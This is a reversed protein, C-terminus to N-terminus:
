AAKRVRREYRGGFAKRRLRPVRRELDREVALMPEGWARARGAVAAAERCADLAAAIDRLRHERYRALYLWAAAAGPGGRAAIGTWAAV